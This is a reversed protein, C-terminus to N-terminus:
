VLGAILTERDPLEFREAANHLFSIAVGLSNDAMLARAAGVTFEQLHEASGSHLSEAAEFFEEQSTHLVFYIRHALSGQASIDDPHKSRIWVLLRDQTAGSYLFDEQNREGQYLEIAM